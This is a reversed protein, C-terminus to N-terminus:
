HQPRVNKVTGRVVLETEVTMVSPVKDPHMMLELLQKAACQGMEETNQRITTLGPTVYKALQIDDFGIVSIDEGVQLGRDSLAHMAGIAMMDSACFVATPLETVSLLKVMAEYGSPETFDGQIVWDSRFPLSWKQLAQQYGLMRDHGPKTGFRDGIFAIKRHGCQVFHEVAQHAGGINDSCLYSARPGILDLDVSVVPIMSKSLAVLGEDTRPVGLLFLGDVDRHRARAEFGMPSTGSLVNSFFLLDYGAEGVVDKFSAIVDHLFPHRFGSNVHDQFFVGITMSQRTVLSRAIASPQYGLETTIKQVKERTKQSVDSYGNLVKSVTTPSVGAQKAIDYITTMSM